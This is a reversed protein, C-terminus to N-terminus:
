ENNLSVYNNNVNGKFYYEDDLLLGDEINDDKNYITNNDLIKNVLKISNSNNSISYSTNSVQFLVIFIIVLGIVIAEKNVKKKM